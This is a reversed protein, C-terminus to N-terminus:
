LIFELKSALIRFQNILDPALLVNCRCPDASDIEVVLNEKFEDLNEILGKDALESFLAKVEANAAVVGAECGLFSQKGRPETQPLQQYKQLM